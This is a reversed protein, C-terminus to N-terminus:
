ALAGDRNPEPSRLYNDLDAFPALAFALRVVDESEGEIHGLHVQAETAARILAELDCRKVTMAEVGGLRYWPSRFPPTRKPM